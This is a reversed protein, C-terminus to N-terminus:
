RKIVLVNQVYLVSMTSVLKCDANRCKLLPKKHPMLLCADYTIWFVAKFKGTGQLFLQNCAVSGENWPLTSSRHLVGAHLRWCSGVGSPVRDSSCWQMPSGPLLACLIVEFQCVGICSLVTCFLITISACRCKKLVWDAPHHVNSFCELVHLPSVHHPRVEWSIVVCTPSKCM